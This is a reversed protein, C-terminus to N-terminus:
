FVVSVASLDFGWIEQIINRGLLRQMTGRSCFCASSLSRTRWPIGDSAFGRSYNLYYSNRLKKHTLAETGLTISKTPPPSKWLHYQAPFRLDRPIHGTLSSHSDLRIRKKQDCQSYSQKACAGVRVHQRAVPGFCTAGAM